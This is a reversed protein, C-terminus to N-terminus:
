GELEEIRATLADIKDDAEQLAKILPMIFQGYELTQMGDPEVGWGDFKESDLGQNDLAAKVEQALMGTQWTKIVPEDHQMTGTGDCYSCDPDKGFCYTCEGEEKYTDWTSPVDNPARLHYNVPRLQNIFSLGAVM